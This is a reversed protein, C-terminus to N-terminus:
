LIDAFLGVLDLNGMAIRSRIFELFKGLKVYIVVNLTFGLKIDVFVGM